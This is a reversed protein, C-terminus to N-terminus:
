SRIRDIPAPEDAGYRGAEPLRLRPEHHYWSGRPGEVPRQFILRHTYDIYTDSKTHLHFETPYLSSPHHSHTTKTTRHSSTKKLIFRPNNLWKSHIQVHTIFFNFDIIYNHKAKHVPSNRDLALQESKTLLLYKM